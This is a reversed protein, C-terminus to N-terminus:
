KETEQSMLLFGTVDAVSTILGKVEDAATLEKCRCLWRRQNRYMYVSPKIPRFMRHATLWAQPACVHHASDGLVNRVYSESLSCDEGEVCMCARMRTCVRVCARQRCGCLHVVVAEGLLSHKKEQALFTSSDCVTAYSLAM